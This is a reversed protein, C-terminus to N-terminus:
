LGTDTRESEASLCREDGQRHTHLDHALDGGDGDVLRVAAM